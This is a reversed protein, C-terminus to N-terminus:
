GAIEESALGARYLLCKGHSRPRELTGPLVVNAM